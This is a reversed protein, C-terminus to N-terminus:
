RVVIRKIAIQNDQEVRLVYTGIQLTSLDISNENTNVSLVKVGLINYIEIHKESTLPSDLYIVEGHMVPNPYLKLEANFLDDIGTPTNNIVMLNDIEFDEVNSESCAVIKIKFNSSSVGTLSKSFKVSSNETINVNAEYTHTGGELQFTNGGDTSYYVDLYEGGDFSTGFNIDCSFTLDSIGTIDITETEFSVANDVDNFMLIGNRVAAYDNQNAFGQTPTLTWKSVNSPYDGKSVQSPTLSSVGVYGYNDSYSDFNESWMLSGNRRVSIDDLEFRENSGNNYMRIKVILNSANGPDFTYDLSTTFAVGAAGDNAFTHGSNTESGAQYPILTYTEGNDTSYSVDIYENGAFDGSTFAHFNIRGIKINVTGSQSSIDINETTFYASGDIDRAHIEGDGSSVNIFFYDSTSSSLELFRADLEWKTESGPAYGNNTVFANPGTIGTFESYSSFDEEWITTQSFLALPFLCLVLLFKKM